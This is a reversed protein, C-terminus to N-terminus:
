AHCRPQRPHLSVDAHGKRAPSLDDNRGLPVGLRGERRQRRLAVSSRGASSRRLDCRIGRFCRAPVTSRPLRPVLPTKSSEPSPRRRGAMPATCALAAAPDAPIPLDREQARRLDAGSDEAAADRPSSVGRAARDKGADDAQLKRGAGEAGADRGPDHRDHPELRVARHLELAGQVEGHRAGDVRSLGVIGLKAASYNAQGFNGILGSTSTMHVFGGRSRSASIPAAAARSVYFSGHLHVDIVTRGNRSREHPPLHPRAPHRRQQGRM